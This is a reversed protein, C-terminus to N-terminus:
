YYNNDDEGFNEFENFGPDDEDDFDDEDYGDELSNHGFENEESGGFDEFLDFERSSEEPAEGFAHTINPYVQGPLAKKLEILETYFCWMRLFDYVYVLKDGPAKLLDRLRVGSMTGEAGGEEPSATELLSIEKGKDWNDNSLYFSAMEKGEFSFASLIARHLEEFSSETSIEIDRFIDEETDLVIRFKFINM